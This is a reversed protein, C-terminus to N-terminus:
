FSWVEEIKEPKPASPTEFRKKNPNAHGRRVIEAELECITLELDNFNANLLAKLKPSCAQYTGPM